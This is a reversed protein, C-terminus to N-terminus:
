IDLIKVNKLKIKLLIIIGNSKLIEFLIDYVQVM